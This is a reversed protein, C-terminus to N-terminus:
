FSDCKAETSVCSADTFECTSHAPHVFCGVTKFASEFRHVDPGFYILVMGISRQGGNSGELRMKGSAFCISTAHQALLAFWGTETQNPVLLIAKKVSETKYEEILQNAYERELSRPPLLWINGRWDSQPRGDGAPLFREARVVQNTFDSGAPDLEISGMVEHARDIIESSAHWTIPQNGDVPEKSRQRRPALVQEPPVTGEAVRRIDTKTTCDSNMLAQRVPEGFLTAVEDSSNRFARDRQEKKISADSKQVNQGSTSKKGQQKTRAGNHYAQWKDNNRRGNQNNVIWQKVSDRSEFSVELVLPIPFTPDARFSERWLELRHHGDILIGQESWVVLPTHIQRDREINLRLQRLEDDTLRRLIKAFEDDIVIKDPHVSRASTPRVLTQSHTSPTSVEAHPPIVQLQDSNIELESGNELSVLVTATDNVTPPANPFTADLVVGEDGHHTKIRTQPKFRTKLLARHALADKGISM